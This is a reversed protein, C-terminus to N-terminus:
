KISNKEFVRINQGNIVLEITGNQDTRYIKAGVEALRQLAEKTPHGYTNKAGVEIVAIKPRLENLFEKSSSFKSGHHPVKLIDVVGINNKVLNSEVNFGIDGTFLAKANKSKLEAVVTTDNLEKSKLFDSNPSLIDMESEKYFIKDGEGLVVIKISNDKIAKELDLFAKAEGTRGSTLFAGVRYRKMVEILGGFHDLQAHSMMVLDIYRDGPPLIKALNDLVKGNPLGGDILIKVGGPLIVFESDGQGVDLFYIKLDSEGARSAFVRFFVFVDLVVLIAFLIILTNKHRQIKYILEKM